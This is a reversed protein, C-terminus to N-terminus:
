SKEISSACFERVVREDEEDADLEFEGAKTAVDDGGICGDVEKRATPVGDTDFTFTCIDGRNSGSGISAPPSDVLGNLRSEADTAMGGVTGFSKGEMAGPFDEVEVNDVRWEGGLLEHFDPLCSDIDSALEGLLLAHLVGRRVGGEDEGGIERRADRWDGGPPV